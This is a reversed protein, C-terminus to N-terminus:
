GLDSCKKDLSVSTEPHADWLGPPSKVVLSANAQRATARIEQDTRSGWAKGLVCVSGQELLWGNKVGQISNKM